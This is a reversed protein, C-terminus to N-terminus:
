SRGPKDPLRPFSLTISLFLTLQVDKAFMFILAAPLLVMANMSYMVAPGIMMRVATLDNTFRAVLDGTRSSNNFPSLFDSFIISSVNRVDNEVKWSEGIIIFRMFFRTISKVTQIIFIFGVVRYLDNM